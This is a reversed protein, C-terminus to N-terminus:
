PWPAGSGTPPCSSSRAMVVVDDLSAAVRHAGSGQAAAANWAVGATDAPERHHPSRPQASGSDSTSVARTALRADITTVAITGTTTRTTPRYRSCTAM